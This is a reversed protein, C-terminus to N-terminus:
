TLSLSATKLHAHTQPLSSPASIARKRKAICSMEPRTWLVARPESFLMNGIAAMRGKVEAAEGERERKMGGKREGNGKDRGRDRM